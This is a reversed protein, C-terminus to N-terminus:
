KFIEDIRQDNQNKSNSVISSKLKADKLSEELVGQVQELAMKVDQLLKTSNQDAVAVREDLGRSQFWQKFTYTCLYM